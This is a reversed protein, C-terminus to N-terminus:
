GPGGLGAGAWQTQQWGGPQGPLRQGEPLLQIDELEQAFVQPHGHELLLYVAEAGVVLHCGPSPAWFLPAPVGMLPLPPLGGAGSRGLSPPLRRPKGSCGGGGPCRQM